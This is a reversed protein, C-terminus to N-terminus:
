FRQRLRKMPEADNVGILVGLDRLRRELIQRNHSLLEIPISMGPPSEDIYLGYRDRLLKILDVFSLSTQGKGKAAKRLHRHVIFDLMTNTLVISRAESRGRKGSTDKQFIKRKKALGNPQDIMLCSDLATTYQRRQMNGMLLCIAEALRMAPNGYQNLFEQVSPEEDAEKLATSLKLCTESLDELIKVARPHSEYLISGLMNIFATADPFTPPLSDRMTHDHRVKDDLIRLCMMIVPLREFRRLFDSISEEALRRLKLDNGCSSDVFLLSPNQANFEPLSGTKEWALFMSATSFFINTLGLSLCSELMQLFTQRPISEGYSQLFVNIDERFHKASKRALPYRNHIKQNEGRGKASTPAEGCAQAIRITLLQDLGILYSEPGIELFQDSTIDTPREGRIKMSRGFLNLMINEEFGSGISFLSKGQNSQIYEGKEQDALLSVLMEPIYRLYNVEPPLDIWSALYHTPYARQVQETRGMQHRRNELCFSLLMDGLIAKGSASDFGEFWDRKKALNNVVDEITPLIIKSETPKGFTQEFTGKGRRHGWRFMYLVAPLVAGMSFDHIYFPLVPFCWSTWLKKTTPISLVDEVIKKLTSM